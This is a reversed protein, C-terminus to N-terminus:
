ATVPNYKNMWYEALTYGSLFADQASTGGFYDGVLALPAEEMELEMFYDNIPNRANFYKWVHMDTWEPNIVWPSTIESARELLLERVEERSSDRHKRAFEDSSRIVLSTHSPNELKSSENGVWSLTPDECEIGKWEPQYEKNYSAMLSICSDYRVEDIHRIIRRTPTIDQATQLIGYAEPAPTAIIVADCEFVSIDTLNIMWARKKSRNAGIYTLGGAKEESKLDVWRSLFQPIANIGEPSVHYSNQPRHPNVEHLQTGDFFAFDRSWEKLLGKEKLLKIFGHFTKRSSIVSSTGYDFIQAEKKLTAMKGGLKRSKEIVTVDHGAEALKKGAVLGSLGAGIIGIKM